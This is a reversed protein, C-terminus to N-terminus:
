LETVGVGLREFVDFFAPFSVDVDDAGEITTEGDAVLAAVALSMIIRHDDHGRVTAGELEGGRVVLEDEAEETEIGMRGLESAM